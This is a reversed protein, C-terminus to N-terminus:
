SRDIGHSVADIARKLGAVDSEFNWQSIRQRATRGMERTRSPDALLETIASALHSVSGAPVIRGTTSDILDAACGCENSVIVACNANMAENVALGWPERNSALVFIDALDYIAPLATQNRFGEFKVAPDGDAAVMLDERVDGDGVYVLYPAHTATRDLSQFAHLLAIPNKRQSFKGAFLIVPRGPELGLERCLTERDKAAE